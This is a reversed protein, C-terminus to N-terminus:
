SMLTEIKNIAALVNPKAANDKKVRTLKDSLVNDKNLEIGTEMLEGLSNGIQNLTNAMPDEPKLDDSMVTVLDLVLNVQTLMLPYGLQATKADEKTAVKTLQERTSLLLPDLTKSLELNKDGSVYTKAIVQSSFDEKVRNVTLMTKDTLGTTEPIVKVFPENIRLNNLNDLPTDTDIRIIDFPVHFVKEMSSPCLENWAVTLTAKVAQGPEVEKLQFIMVEDNNSSSGGPSFLWGAGNHDTSNNVLKVDYLGNDIKDIGIVNFSAQPKILNVTTTTIREGLLYSITVEGGTNALAPTFTFGEADERVGPGSAKGGSINTELRYPKKDCWVYETIELSVSLPQFAPITVIQTFTAFCPPKDLRMTVPMERAVEGLPYVRKFVRANSKISGLEDTLQYEKGGTTLMTYELIIKEGVSANDEVVRHTFEASCPTLNIKRTQTVDCAGKILQLEVDFETQESIDYIHDVIAQDSETGDGLKYAYSDMGAPAKFQVKAKANDADIQNIDAKFEETIADVTVTVSVTKGQYEYSIENAGLIVDPHGPYFHYDGDILVLGNGRPIGGPPDFTVPEHVDQHCLFLRDIFISVERRAPITITQSQSDSCTEQEITLTVTVERQTEGLEYDQEVTEQNEVTVDEDLQWLRTNAAQPHSFAYRIKDLSRAVEEVTFNANCIEFTLEHSAEGICPEKKVTLKVTFASSESLDYTHVPNAKNSSNGDGFDWLYENADVPTATFKIEASQPDESVNIIKYSIAAKIQALLASFEYRANNILYAFKIEGEDIDAQAPTFYFDGTTVEKTAGSGIVEGGPPHTIFKFKRKDNKCFYELPLKFLVPETSCLNIPPCDSCCIYPLAFDLVVTHEDDYVLFFTGGAWSGGVHSMGCNHESYVSLLLRQQIKLKRANYNDLLGRFQHYCGQDRILNFYRLLKPQDEAPIYDDYKGIVQEFMDLRTLLMQYANDFSPKDFTALPKELEKLLLDLSTTIDVPQSVKDFIETDERINLNAFNKYLYHKTLLSTDSVPDFKIKKILSDIKYPSPTALAQATNIRFDQKSFLVKEPQTKELAVKEFFSSKEAIEPQSLELSINRSSFISPDYILEYGPTKFVDGKFQFDPSVKPQEPSATFRSDFAKSYLEPKEAYEKAKNLIENEAVRQSYILQREDILADQYLSIDALSLTKKDQVTIPFYKSGYNDIYTEVQYSGPPVNTIEMEGENNTQGHINLEKIAYHVRSLPLNTKGDIFKGKVKTIDSIEITEKPSDFEIGAVLEKLKNYDCSLKQALSTYVLEIDDFQCDLSASIDQYNSGVKLAMLKIPLNYCKIWQSIQDFADTYKEGLHGEIRYFPYENQDVDLPYQHPILADATPFKHKLTKLLLYKPVPRPIPAPTPAPTPSPTPGPVPIPRPFPFPQPIPRPVPQPLPLPFPTPRPDPGTIPGPLPGPLPGPVPGPFPSPAPSPFPRPDFGPFPSPDIGPFPRPDFGTIPTIFSGLSFAESIDTEPKSFSNAKTLTEPTFKIDSFDAKLAALTEIDVLSKSDVLSKIEALKIDSLPRIDVIDTFPSEAFPRETFPKEAFFLPAVCIPTCLNDLYSFVQHSRCQSALDFDWYSKLQPYQQLDYYYPLTRKGLPTGKEKSPTIKIKSQGPQPVKFARTLLVLRQFLFKVQNIKGGAVPEEPMTANIFYHRYPSPYCLAPVDVQGLMLHKPFGSDPLCAASFVKFAYNIFEEYALILDKIHDYYYQIGLPYKAQQNWLKPQWDTFPNAQYDESLLPAYAEFAQRFAKPIEQLPGQQILYAYSKLIDELELLHNSDGLWHLRGIRLSPLQYKSLLMQYLDDSKASKNKQKLSDLQDKDILLIRVCLNIKSGKENCDSGTCTDLDEDEVELYALAVKDKFFDKNLAKHDPNDVDVQGPPLLHWLEAQQEDEGEDATNFFAYKVPDTYASYHSYETASHKVLYGLTTLGYGTSLSVTTFDASTEIRFGHAIGAGVFCKRTWRSQLDLFAFLDNLQDATLVQDAQFKPYTNCTDM